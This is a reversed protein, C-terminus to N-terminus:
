LRLGFGFSPGLTPGKIGKTKPKHERLLGAFGFLAGKKKRPSKQSDGVGGRGGM